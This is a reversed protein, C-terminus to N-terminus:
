DNLCEKKDFDKKLNRLIEIASASDTAIACKYADDILKHTRQNSKKISMDMRHNERKLNDIRAYCHSRNQRENELDSQLRYNNANQKIVMANERYDARFCEMCLVEYPNMVCLPFRSPLIEEGCCDCKLTKMYDEHIPDIQKETM